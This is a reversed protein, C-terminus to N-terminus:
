FVRWRLQAGRAPFGVVYINHGPADISLGFELAGVARDQGVIGELPQIEDTTEFGLSDPDCFSTLRNSPVKLADIDM